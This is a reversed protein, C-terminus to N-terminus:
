EPGFVQGRDAKMDVVIWGRARAEDLGKDLRGVMSDRDYAWERAGDTHHLYLGLRPGPGGANWSPLPDAAQLRGAWALAALALGLFTPLLRLPTRTM